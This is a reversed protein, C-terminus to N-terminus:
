RVSRASTWGRSGDFRDRWDSSREPTVFCIEPNNELASNMPEQSTVEARYMQSEPASKSEIYAPDFENPISSM